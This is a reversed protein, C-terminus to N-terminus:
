AEGNRESEAEERTRRANEVDGRIAQCREALLRQTPEWLLVYLLAVLVLFNVAVMIYTVEFFLLRGTNRIWLKQHKADGKQSDLALAMQVLLEEDLVDGVRVLVNGNPDKVEQGSEAERKAFDVCLRPDLALVTGPNAEILDELARQVILQGAELGAQEARMRYRRGVISAKADEFREAARWGTFHNRQIVTLRAPILAPRTVQSRGKSAAYLFTGM